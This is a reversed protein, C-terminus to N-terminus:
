ASIALTKVLVYGHLTSVKGQPWVSKVSGNDPMLRGIIVRAVLGLNEVVVLDVLITVTKNKEFDNALNTLYVAETVIM